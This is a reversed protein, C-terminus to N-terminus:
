AFLQAFNDNINVILVALKYSCNIQYKRPDLLAFFAPGRSECPHRHKPTSKALSAPIQFSAKLIEFDAAM